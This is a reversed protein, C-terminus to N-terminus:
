ASEGIDHGPAAARAARRWAAAADLAVQLVVAPSVLVMFMMFGHYALVFESYIIASEILIL